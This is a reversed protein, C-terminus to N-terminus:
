GSMNADIPLEQKPSNSLHHKGHDKEIEVMGRWRNIPIRYSLVTGRRGNM